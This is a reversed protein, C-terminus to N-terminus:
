SRVEMLFVNKYVTEGDDGIKIIDLGNDEFFKQWIDLSWVTLHLAKSKDKRGRRDLVPHPRILLYKKTIRKAEDIADRLDEERLHEYVDTAMYLDFEKDGFVSLDTASSLHCKRGAKKNKKVLGESVDVGVSKVGKKTWYKLTKGWACGVDIMSSISIDNQQMFEKFKRLAPKSRDESKTYNERFLPSYINSYFKFTDKM